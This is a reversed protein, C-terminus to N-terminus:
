IPELAQEKFKRLLDLTAKAHALRTPPLCFLRVHPCCQCFGTLEGKKAKALNYDDRASIGLYADKQFAFVVGNPSVFRQILKEVRDKESKAIECLAEKRFLKRLGAVGVWASDSSASPMSYFVALGIRFPSDSILDCMEEKRKLNSLSKFSLISAEKLAKWFRHERGNSEFSFFMESHVSHSAPNGLLLLLPFRSDTKEPIICETRYILREDQLKIIRSNYSDSKLFLCLREKFKKREEQTSYLKQINLSVEQISPKGHIDKFKMLGKMTNM